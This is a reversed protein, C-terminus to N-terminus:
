HIIIEFEISLWGKIGNQSIYLTGLQYLNEYEINWRIEVNRYVIHNDSKKIGEDLAKLFDLLELPNHGRQAMAVATCAITQRNNIPTISSVGTWTNVYSIRTLREGETEYTFSYEKNTPTGVTDRVIVVGHQDRERVTWSGDQKLIYSQDFIEEAYYNYNEAFQAITIDNGRYKPLVINASVLAYLLCFIVLFAAIILKKGAKYASFELWSKAEWQCDGYDKYEKYSRYMRWLRYFPIGFGYGYRLADWERDVACRYSIKADTEDSVWLGMLWKGPTTGLKSLFFAYVPVALFPTGYGVLKSLFDGYPRVRFVVIILTMLLLRLLGYDILRAALRRVPHFDTTLGPDCYVLEKKQADQKPPTSYVSPDLTSYSAESAQMKQCIELAQAMANAKRQLVGMQSLLADSLEMSGQQLAKITDLSLELQRLLIIKRIDALDAESYDRYGNEQRAPKLLGEKEYFRITARDLGSAAEFEQIKM